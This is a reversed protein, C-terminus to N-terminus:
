VNESLKANKKYYDYLFIPIKTHGYENRLPGHFLSKNTDDHPGYFTLFM